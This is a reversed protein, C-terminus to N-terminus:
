NLLYKNQELSDTTNYLVYVVSEIQFLTRSANVLVQWSITMAEKRNPFIM